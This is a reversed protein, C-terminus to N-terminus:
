DTIQSTDAFDSLPIIVDTGTFTFTVPFDVDSPFDDWTHIGLEAFTKGNTYYYPSDIYEVLFYLVHNGTGENWETNNNYPLITTMSDGAVKGSSWTIIGNWSPSFVVVQVFKGNYGAMGTITIQAGLERKFKSFDIETVPANITLKPINGIDDFSEINLDAFSQGGTYFYYVKQSSFYSGLYYNVDLRIYYDGTENWQYLNATWLNDETDFSAGRKAVPNEPSDTLSNMVVVEVTEIEFDKIGAINAIKIKRYPSVVTVDCEATKDGDETAVTIVADGLAVGTVTGNVVTAVGTDSSNWTVNKNTAGIPAVLATLTATEDAMLVLSEKNLTVGTVPRANVTVNCRATKGGDETTVTIIASGPAVGTVTGNAVTAVGTNSSSWSITKNVADLPLVTATLTATNNSGTGATLTLTDRNLSVGSVVGVPAAEVTVTCQAMKGGDRTIVTIVVTGASLTTVKGSEDVRAVLTNSSRWILGQNTADTPTIAATLTEEDGATLALSTKNLTVGTVHIANPDGAEVTVSCQATKGGDETTVTIVASGVAVAIVLGSDDVGAVNENTSSWSTNKNAANYPLVEVTLQEVEGETLTITTKDLTVGIVSISPSVKVTCQATRGGDKTIVTIIATGVARATIVGNDVSVVNPAKSSWLVAKNAANDPSITVILTRTEGITLVLSKENLTIGDASVFSRNLKPNFVDECAAFMTVAAIALLWQKTKM